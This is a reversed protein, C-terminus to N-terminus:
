PTGPRHMRRKLEELAQQEEKDLQQFLSGDRLDFSRRPRGDPKNREDGNHFCWGAAGGTEAGKLDTVYDRARPNWQAFGRRFPEQYHVPAVRGLERMWELYRRTQAETQEASGAQRPRHPSIFDVRITKLYQGLEERTLDGAHSATVLREPDLDRVIKRLDALDEISSFRKDRINRENSLDLYWNRWAQLKSVLMRVARVHSAHDGLRAPGTAGNGRSLTVDVILGRRDCEQLLHELKTLFEPRPEGKDDVASVDNEFGAWTAWVRLWNFGRRQFEALDGRLVEDTAGLAGYYSIGFLFTDRRNITFRTGQIGLQTHAEAAPTVRPLLLSLALLALASFRRNM